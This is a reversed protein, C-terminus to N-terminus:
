WPTGPSSRTRYHLLSSGFSMATFFFVAERRLAPLLRAVLAVFFRVALLLERDVFALGLLRIALVLVREALLALPFAFFDALLFRYGTKRELHCM